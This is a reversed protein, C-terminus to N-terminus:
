NEQNYEQLIDNEIKVQYLTFKVKTGKTSESIVTMEGNLKQLIKKTVALGIGMGEYSRSISMDVQKFPMGINLIHEESIGIGTDEVIIDLNGDIYNTEINVHGISTFKIANDVVNKLSKSLAASDSNFIIDDINGLKILLGKTSAANVYQFYVENIIDPLYTLGYHLQYDNSELLALDNLNSILEYVRRGSLEVLESYEILEEDELETARKKMLSVFGLLGNFPTRIEHTMNRIIASKFNDSEEVKSKAVLLEKNINENGDIEIKLQKSILYNRKYSKYYILIFIILIIIVLGAGIIIINKLESEQKNSELKVKQLDLEKKNLEYDYIIKQTENKNFDSKTQTKNETFLNYYKIASDVKQLQSYSKALGEYISSKTNNGNNDKNYKLSMYFHEIAKLYKNQKLLIDAINYHISFLYDGEKLLNNNVLFQYGKLSEYFNGEHKKILSTYFIILNDIFKSKYEQNIQKAQNLYEKSKELDNISYYAKSIHIYALSINTNTNYQKASNIASLLFKISKNPDIDLYVFGLNVLIAYKQDNYGYQEYTKLAKILYDTTSKINGQQFFSLGLQNYTLAVLKNDGAERFIALSEEFNFISETYDEYINQYYGKFFHSWGLIKQFGNNLYAANLYSSISNFIEPNELSYSKFIALSLSDLYKESHQNANIEDMLGQILIDNNSLSISHMMVMLFLSALLISKINKIFSVLNQVKLM